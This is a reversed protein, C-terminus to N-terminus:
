ARRGDLGRQDDVTDEVDCKLPYSFAETIKRVNLKKSIRKSLQSLDVNMEYLAFAEDEESVYTWEILKELKKNDEGDFDFNFYTAVEENLCHQAM